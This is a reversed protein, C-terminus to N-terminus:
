PLNELARSAAELLSEAYPSRAGAATLRVIWEGDSREAELYAAAITEERVEFRVPHFSVPQFRFLRGDESQWHQVSGAHNSLCRIQAPRTM